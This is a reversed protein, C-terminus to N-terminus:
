CRYLVSNSVAEVHSYVMDIPGRVARLLGHTQLYLDTHANSVEGSAAISKDGVNRAAIEAYSDLASNVKELTQRLAAIEEAVSSSTKEM